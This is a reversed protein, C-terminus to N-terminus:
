RTLKWECVFFRASTHAYNNYWRGTKDMYCYVRDETFRGPYKPAWNTVSVPEKNTWEWSVKGGNVAGHLNIWITRRDSEVAMKKVFDQEAQSTITVLQGGRSECWMKATHWSAGVQIMKYASQGFRQADAPMGKPMPVRTLKVDDIMFKLESQADYDDIKVYAQSSTAIFRVKLQAWKGDTLNKTFQRAVGMDKRRNSDVARLYIREDEDKGRALVRVRASLDYVEAKELEVTNRVNAKRGKWLLVKHGEVAESDTVVELKAAKTGQDVIWGTTGSEFGTNKVLNVIMIERIKKTLDAIQSENDTAYKTQGHAQKYADIREMALKATTPTLPRGTIMKELQKWADRAAVESEGLRKREIQAM